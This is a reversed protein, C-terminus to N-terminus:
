LLQKQRLFDDWIMMCRHVLDFLDYKHQGSRIVLYEMSHPGDDPAPVHFHDYERFITFDKDVSARNIEMHKTGNCIDRCIQLEVHNHVLTDVDHQSVVGSKILWERLHHCNQFFANVFDQHEWLDGSQRREESINMVRNHWRVTREFQGHWGLATHISTGVM